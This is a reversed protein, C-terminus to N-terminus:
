EEEEPEAGWVPSQMYYRGSERIVIVPTGTPIADTEAGQQLQTATITQGSGRLQVSYTNIGNRSLVYAFFANGGGVSGPDSITQPPTITRQSYNNM